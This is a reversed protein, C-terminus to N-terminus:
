EIGSSPQAQAHICVNRPSNRSSNLGVLNFPNTLLDLPRIRLPNRQKM